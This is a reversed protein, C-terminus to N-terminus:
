EETSEVRYRDLKNRLTRSTIGLEAAASTKNGGHRKLCNLIVAREIEALEMGEFGRISGSIQGDSNSAEVEEDMDTLCDVNIREDTCLVCARHIVNRLERVNGPWSYRSLKQMAEPAVGTVRTEADRKFREVFHSVLLPIDAKRIRLPPVNLKLVNLRYFLDARFRGQRVEQKLDRNSTAVIRVDIPRTRRCGVRQVEQQEIARLLKAQSTAPIESIEDLLLTGGHALEFYGAREDVAGTFAGRTHGFLESEFLTESLAACNVAMFPGTRRPSSVHVMRSFLEKGTGSEGTILVAANSRAFKRLAQMVCEMERSQYAITPREISPERQRADGEPSRFPM